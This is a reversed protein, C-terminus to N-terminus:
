VKDRLADELLLDFSGPTAGLARESLQVLSKLRAVQEDPTWDFTGEGLLFLSGALIIQVTALPDDVEFMGKSRGEEVVGAMIPGLVKVTQVNNREHLERNQPLHLNDVVSAGADRVLRQEIFMLRLKAIPDLEANEAVARTRRAMQDVMETVLAELVDEKTRFYYYFTGKAIDATRVIEDVTTAAFGRKAFLRAAVGLIEARRIEPSKVTRVM